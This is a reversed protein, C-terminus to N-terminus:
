RDVLRHALGLAGRLEGDGAERQKGIGIGPQAVFVAGLREVGAIQDAAGDAGDLLRHGLDADEAIHREIGVGAVAMIPKEAVADDDVVLRDGHQHLLRQDLRSAPASMM